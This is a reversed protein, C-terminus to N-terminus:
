TTFTLFYCSRFSPASTGPNELPWPRGLGKRISRPSWKKRRVGGVFRVGADAVERTGSDVKICRAGYEEMQM